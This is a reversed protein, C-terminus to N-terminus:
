REFVYDHDKSSGDSKTLSLQLTELSQVKGFLNMIQNLSTIKKGNIKTIIDDNEIGLYSYISGPVIEVIKFSLSGDPRQIQIARAQTLISDIDALKKQILNKEIKYMNGNQVIGNIKPKIAEKAANGKLLNFSRNKGKKKKRELYECLGTRLNKIIIREELIANIKALKQIKENERFFHTTRKGPTLLGVVSKKRNQLVIINKIKISLASKRNASECILNEDVKTTSNKNDPMLVDTAQSNFGDKHIANKLLAVKNKTSSFSPTNFYKPTLPSTSYILIAISKAISYTTFFILCHVFVNHIKPRVDPSLLREIGNQIKKTSFAQGKFSFKKLSLLPGNGEKISHFKNNLFQKIRYLYERLKEGMM